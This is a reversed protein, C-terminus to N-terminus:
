ATTDLHDELVWVIRKVRAHLDFVDQRFREPDVPVAVLPYYSVAYELKELEDTQIRSMELSIRELKGASL